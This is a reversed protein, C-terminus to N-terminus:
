QFDVLLCAQGRLMGAGGIVPMNVAHRLLYFIPVDRSAHFYRTPFYGQLKSLVVVITVITFEM